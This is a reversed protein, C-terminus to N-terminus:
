PMLTAENSPTEPSSTNRTTSSVLTDEQFFTDTFYYVAVGLMSLISLSVYRAFRRIVSESALLQVNENM